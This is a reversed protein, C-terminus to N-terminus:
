IHILSLNSRTEEEIEVYASEVVDFVRDSTEEAQAAQKSDEATLEVGTDDVPQDVSEDKSCSTFLFFTAAVLMIGTKMFNPKM